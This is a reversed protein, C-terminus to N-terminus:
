SVTNQFAFPSSNITLFEFAKASFTRGFYKLCLLKELKTLCNFM